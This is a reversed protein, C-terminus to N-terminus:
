GGIAEGLAAGGAPEDGTAQGFLTMTQMHL